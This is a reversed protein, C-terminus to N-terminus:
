RECGSLPREELTETVAQVRREESCSGGGLLHGSLVRYVDDSSEQETMSFRLCLLRVSFHLELGHPYFYVSFM